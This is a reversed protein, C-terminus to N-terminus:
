VKKDVFLGTKELMDYVMDLIKEPPIERIVEETKNDIVKVTIQKTKEHISFKLSTDMGLLEKNAKEIAEILKREGPFSVNEEKNKIEKSVDAKENSQKPLNDQKNLNVTNINQISDIRM